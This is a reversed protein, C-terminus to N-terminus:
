GGRRQVLARLAEVIDGLRVPAAEAARDPFRVRAAVVAVLVVAGAALALLAARWGLGAAVAAGIAAPGALAGVSGAITWRTMNREREAPAVDM